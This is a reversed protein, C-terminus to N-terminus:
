GFDGILHEAYPRLTDLTWDAPYYATIGSLKANLNPWLSLESIAAAWTHFDGNAIDPGGCHDLVFVTNPCADVLDRALGLQRQSVCIDFPLGAEGLLAINERFLDAHSLCDPVVHLVRRVGKLIRRDQRELWAPFGGGEPRAAAIAGRLPSGPLAMLEGVMATEADIDAPDVDVEMHLVDTIGLRAAMATYDAFSWDRDLAPVNGLWPYRLRGRDVIHLHTDFIM